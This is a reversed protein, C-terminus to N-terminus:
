AIDPRSSFYTNESLLAAAPPCFDAPDRSYPFYDGAATRAAIPKGL